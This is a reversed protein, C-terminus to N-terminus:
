GSKKDSDENVLYEDINKAEVIQARQSLQQSIQSKVATLKEPNEDQWQKFKYSQGTLDWYISKSVLVLSERSEYLPGVVVVAACFFLWIFGVVVWGTFFKKSFVYKSGYMPIPWLLLFAFTLFICLALSVKFHKKLITEQEALDNKHLDALNSAIQTVRSTLPVLKDSNEEDIKVGEAALLEEEEDVRRVNKLIEWDFNQPKFAYTFIPILFCPSMLAVLNGTLMSYDEFTTNVDVAGFVGKSCAIWSIIALVTAIPPSLAAAWANQSKNFLTLCLPIVAGGILVGMLEYLYGMSVGAYYLGIAFAAMVYGFLLVTAHSIFILRKGSAEPNIYSRYIDFTVVTSVSVLESSMASTVATFVVLLSAVAGGKGLLAVAANPLVLGSNVEYDTLSQPYTPWVDSSQLARATLGMTTAVFFPIAFWSLGGLVYSPMTATPSAAFAKSFYANDIFPNFNSIINVIFFIGASKSSMTLYSGEANGERPDSIAAENLLEWMKGPSGLASSTAFAAFGFVFAIILVMTGHVYDTILTAKLGGFMTYLIVGLPLLLCGAIVHVGTLDKIVASGGALLMATVLINVILGWTIFTIHAAKGYRAHVIELYSHANPCIQKARIALCSFMIIQVTAGAAYGYAGFVGNVYTKSSSTLLTAAWTWSSVVGSAILFKKCSKAATSFTEATIVEKKYRRLMWTLLMMGASFFLGLGVLVGYGAGQNLPVYRVTAESM